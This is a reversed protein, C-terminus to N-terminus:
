LADVVDEEGGEVLLLTQVHLCADCTTDGRSMPTSM